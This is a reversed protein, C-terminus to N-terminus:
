LALKAKSFINERLILHIKILNLERCISDISPREEPNITLLKELLPTLIVPFERAITIDGKRALDILSNESTIFYPWAKTCLVHLLIGLSWIDAKDGLIPINMLAEPPSYERTITSCYVTREKSTWKASGGFDCLKVKKGKVLINEPKIDLHAIKNNHCHKVAKCVSTFINLIMQLSLNRREMFDFLDSYPPTSNRKPGLIKEM